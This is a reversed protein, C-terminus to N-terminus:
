PKAGTIIKFECEKAGMARCSTEEIDFEHSAAWFLCERILGQTVFCIPSDERQDICIPSVHDVVLLDLDLTHVTVDGSRASLIHALVDLAAKLRMGAPLGRALKAQAKVVLPADDLLREWLASGVRFLIGRGGRGYYTRMAAQLQSYARAAQEDDLGTMHAPNVWDAPLGAKEFVAKLTDLGLEGRLGEIFRKLIFFPLAAESV